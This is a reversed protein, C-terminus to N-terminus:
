AKGYKLLHSAVEPRGMLSNFERSELGSLLTSVAISCSTATGAVELPHHGEQSPPYQHM